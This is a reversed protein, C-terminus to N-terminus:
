IADQIIKEARLVSPSRIISIRGGINRSRSGPIGRPPQRPIPSIRMVPLTKTSLIGIPASVPNALTIPPLEIFLVM